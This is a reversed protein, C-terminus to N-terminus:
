PSGSLAWRAYRTQHAAAQWRRNWRYVRTLHKQFLEQLRESPDCWIRCEAEGLYGSHARIEPEAKLQVPVKPVGEAGFVGLPNSLERGKGSCALSTGQAAM